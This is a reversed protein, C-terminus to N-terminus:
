CAFGRSERPFIARERNRGMRTHMHMASIHPFRRFIYCHFGNCDASLPGIKVSAGLVFASDCIDVHNPCGLLVRYTMSAVPDPVFSEDRIDVYQAGTAIVRHTM